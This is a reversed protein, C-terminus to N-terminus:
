AHLAEDLPEEVQARVLSRRTSVPTADRVMPVLIL